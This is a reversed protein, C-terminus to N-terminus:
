RFWSHSRNTSLKPAFIFNRYDTVDKYHKLFSVPIPQATNKNPQSSSWYKLGSVQWEVLVRRVRIVQPLFFPVFETLNSWQLINGDSFIFDAKQCSCLLFLWLHILIFGVSLIWIWLFRFFIVVFSYSIPWCVKPDLPDVPEKKVQFLYLYNFLPLLLDHPFPM